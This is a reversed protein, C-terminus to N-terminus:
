VGACLDLAASAIAAIRHAAVATRRTSTRIRTTHLTGSTDDRPEPCRSESGAPGVVSWGDDPLRVRPLGHGVEGFRMRSVRWGRRAGSGRRRPSGRGVVGLQDGRAPAALRARHLHEVVLVLAAHEAHRVADDARGVGLLDRLLHEHPHEAPERREAAVRRQRGPDVPQGDVRRQRVERPAAAAVLDAVVAQGLQRRRRGVSRSEASAARISAASACSGAPYRAIRTRCSTSPRDCSSHAAIRSHRTPVQLDCSWLARARIRSSSPGIAQSPVRHSGHHRTVVIVGAASRTGRRRARRRRARCRQHAAVQAPARRAPLARSRRPRAARRAARAAAPRDAASATPRRAPAARRRRPRRHRAAARPAADSARSPAPASGRNAAPPGADGRRGDVTTHHRSAARRRPRASPAPPAPRSRDAAARSRAPDRTRLLRRRRPAAGRARPASTM